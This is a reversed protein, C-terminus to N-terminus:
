RSNLNLFVIIGSCNRHRDDVSLCHLATALLMLVMMMLLMLVQLRGANATMFRVAARADEVADYWPHFEDSRAPPGRRLAGECRYDISVVAFGHRALSMAQEAFSSMNRAHSCGNYPGSSYGGGHIIVAGPRPTSSPGLWEDLFLQQDEGLWNRHM